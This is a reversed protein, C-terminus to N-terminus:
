APKLRERYVPLDNAMAWPTLREIDAAPCTGLQPIIAELYGLPDVGSAKASEVVSYVVAAAEAGEASGAFQWNNRGIAVPRIARECANNDIPVRGDRLFQLLTRRQNRAYKM